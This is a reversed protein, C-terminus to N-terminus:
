KGKGAELITKRLKKAGADDPRLAILRDVAKVAEKVRGQYYLSV